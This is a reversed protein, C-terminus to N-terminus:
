AVEDPRVQEADLERGPTDRLPYPPARPVM